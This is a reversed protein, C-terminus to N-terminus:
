AAGVLSPDPANLNAIADDNKILLENLKRFREREGVNFAHIMESRALRENSKSLPLPLKEFADTAPCPSGGPLTLTPSVAALSPSPSTAIM